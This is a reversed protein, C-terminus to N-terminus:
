EAVAMEKEESKKERKIGGIQVLNDGKIGSKELLMENYLKRMMQMEEAATKPGEMHPKNPRSLDVENLVLNHTPDGLEVNKGRAFVDHRGHDKYWQAVTANQHMHEIINRWGIGTNYA